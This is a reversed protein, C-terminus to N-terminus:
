SIRSMEHAAFQFLPNGSDLCGSMQQCASTGMM